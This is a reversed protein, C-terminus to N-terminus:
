KETLWERAVMMTSEDEGTLMALARDRYPLRKAGEGYGREIEEVTMPLQKLMEAGGSPASTLWRMLPKVVFLFSFILFIALSVYKFYGKHRELMSLWGEESIEEESEMKKAVEFPINVVEIEDGREADFNVARKVIDEIKKIEEQTRPTYKWEEENEEGKVLEHTGDIVVAVSIREIRGLPEITRSTVKGIEYNMTKDEKQYGPKESTGGTSRSTEIKESPVNSAVGPVGTAVAEPANSITNLIKESRVVKGNPDFVEETKEHQRFDFSCSVRSITKGQGLVKDLMTELRKELGKEVKDQYELQDLSLKATTSRDKSGALTKGYNDVITVNEPDLQSVSASVLHVIGKIQEETLRRGRRLKLVVSATPPEEDEIFLSKSPMVIHVRSSEVEDFGNITRSLEGQLARQYNVNQVFETMGLTTNDFIEFGVGSGQPLGENALSLRTEYIMEKPVLLTKGNGAIQYPIKQEKLKSVMEGADEPTLNSYLIQFDPAGTWVTMLILGALTAGVVTLLVLLKAPSLSKFLAKMQSFINPPKTAM